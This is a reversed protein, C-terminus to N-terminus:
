FYFFAWIGSNFSLMIFLAAKYYCSIISLLFPQLWCLYTWSSNMSCLNRVFGGIVWFCHKTQCLQYSDQANLETMPLLYLGTQLEKPGSSSRKKKKKWGSFMIVDVRQSSIVAKLPELCLTEEWVWECDTVLLFIKEFSRKLIKSISEVYIVQNNQEFHDPFQIQSGWNLFFRKKGTRWLSSCFVKKCCVPSTEEGRLQVVPSLKPTFLCCFGALKWNKYNFPFARLIM